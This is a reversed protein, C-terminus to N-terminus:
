FMDKRWGMGILWAVMVGFVVLNGCLLFMVGALGILGTADKVMCALFMVGRARAGVAGEEGNSMLMPARGCFFWLNVVKQFYGTNVGSVTLVYWSAPVASLVIHLGFHAAAVWLLVRLTCTTPWMMYYQWLKVAGAFSLIGHFLEDQLIDFDALANLGQKSAMSRGNPLWQVPSIPCKGYRLLLAIWSPMARSMHAIKITCYPCSNLGREIAAKLCESGILHNCPQLRYPRCPKELIDDRTNFTRMCVTCDNDEPPVNYAHVVHFRTLHGPLEILQREPM